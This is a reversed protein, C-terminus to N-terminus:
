SSERLCAPLPKKEPPGARKVGCLILLTGIVLAPGAITLNWVVLMLLPGRGMMQFFYGLAFSAFVAGGVLEFRWALWAAGVMVFSPILHMLLALLLQPLSYGEGFVDAAFLSIFAIFLIMLVRPTWFLWRSVASGKELGLLRKLRSSGRKKVMVLAVIGGILTVVPFLIISM